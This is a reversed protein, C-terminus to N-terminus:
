KSLRSTCWRLVGPLGGSRFARVLELESADSTEGNVLLDVPVELAKAIAAIRQLGPLVNGTEYRSIISADTATEGLDVVKAALESQRLRAEHRALKIRKGVAVAFDPESIAGVPPIEPPGELGELRGLVVELARLLTPAPDRQGNELRSLTSISLRIGQRGIASVLEGQSMGLDLRRNRIAAGLDM